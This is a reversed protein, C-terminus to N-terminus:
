LAARYKEVVDRTRHDMEEIFREAWSENVADATRELPTFKPGEGPAMRPVDFSDCIAEATSFDGHEFDEYFLTRWPREAREIYARLSAVANAIVRVSTALKPGDYEPDRQAAHISHWQGTQNAKVLSIAQGVIDKRLLFIFFTREIYQDIVGALEASLIGPVGLKFSFWGDAFSRVVDAPPIGEILHPNLSEEMRGIRFRSALERALYSSGTRSTFLVGLCGDIKPWPAQRVPGLRNEIGEIQIKTFATLRRRADSSLPPAPRDDNSEIPEM